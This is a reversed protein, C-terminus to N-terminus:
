RTPNGRSFGGGEGASLDTSTDGDGDVWITEGSELTREHPTVYHDGETGTPETASGEFGEAEEFAEVAEVLMGVGLGGLGLYFASKAVKDMRGSVTGSIINGTHRFTSTAVNFAAKAVKESTSKKTPQKQEAKRLHPYVFPLAEGKIKNQLDIIRKELQILIIMANVHHKFYEKHEPSGIEHEELNEMKSELKEILDKTEEIDERARQVTRIEQEFEHQYEQFWERVMEQAIREKEEETM